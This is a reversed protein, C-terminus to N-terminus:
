EATRPRLRTGVPQQHGSLRGRRRRELLDAALTAIQSLLQDIGAQSTIAVNVKRIAEVQSNREALPSIIEQGLIAFSILLASIASTNISLAFVQLEPNLFGFSQGVVFLVIGVELLRSRLKRRYRWLVYLTAWDFIVYFVVLLPQSQFSFEGTAIPVFSSPANAFIPLLRAILLVLLSVLALARFRRTHVKVIVATLVYIAVSSGTFGLEMLGIM